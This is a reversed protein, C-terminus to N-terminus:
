HLLSWTFYIHGIPEYFSIVNCRITPMELEACLVTYAWELPKYIIKNPKYDHLNDIYIKANLNLHLLQLLEFPLKEQEKQPNCLNEWNHACLEILNVKYCM